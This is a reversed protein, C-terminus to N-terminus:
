ESEDAPEKIAVNAITKLGQERAFERAVSFEMVCDSLRSMGSQIADEAVPCFDLHLDWVNDQRMSLRLLEEADSFFDRVRMEYTERDMALLDSVESDSMALDSFKRGCAIHALGTRLTTELGQWEGQRGTNALHIVAFIRTLHSALLGLTQLDSVPRFLIRPTGDERNMTAEPCVPFRNFLGKLTELDRTELMESLETDALLLLRGRRDLKWENRMEDAAPMDYANLAAIVREQLRHVLSLGVRFLTQPHEAAVIKVGLDLDGHTLHELALGAMAQTHVLIRRLGSEDDPETGTAACMANAIYVFGRTISEYTSQDWTAVGRELIATLLGPGFNENKAAVLGDTSSGTQQWKTELEQIDLPRFFRLSEEYTVFGDEELRAQRFQAILAEQEGPPMYAAHAVLAYGYGVDGELTCDLLDDIAVRIRDDDSLIRYHLTNCPMPILDDREADPIKEYEEEDFMELYPGLVALQYEEDLQRFREYVAQKSINKYLALWDFVRGVSLRDDHWVTYDMLRVFQNRSILDLVDLSDELGRRVLAQYLPQPALAQIAKKPNKAEMVQDLDLPPGTMLDTAYEHALPVHGHEYAQVTSEPSLRSAM